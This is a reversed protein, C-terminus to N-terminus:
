YKKSSILKGDDFFNEKLLMGKENYYKWTGDKVSHFKKRYKKGGARWVMDSGNKLKYEGEGSERGKADYEIVHGDPFEDFFNGELRKNGKEDRVILYYTRNYQNICTGTLPIVRISDISIDNSGKSMMASRGPYFQVLGKSNETVIVTDIQSLLASPIFLTLFSLHKM